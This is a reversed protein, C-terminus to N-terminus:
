SGLSSGSQEVERSSALSYVLAAERRAHESGASVAPDRPLARSNQYGILRPRRPDRPGRRRLLDNGAPRVPPLAEAADRDEASNATVDAKLLLAGALKAAGGSRSFTFREMEKCSVCWDAYFDLMVPRGAAACRPTSSPSAASRSHLAPMGAVRRRRQKRRSAPWRSCASRDRGVGRRRGAARRRPRALRRDGPALACARCPPQCAGRRRRAARRAAGTRGVVLLGAAGLALLAGSRWRSRGPCSRSCPGSRSASCCCASRAGQGRGDLRRRAALLAGASAGVLLLPVSMGAALSFLALAASGSTARRASISCPAPSRRPSARASSSRRSAAWRACAPSAGGAPLTQAASAFESPSRRRCSCTRLRRVDVAVAGGPRARLRRAGVPEAAGRRPRRRGPRRRRRVATYVVAMGFSYSAALRSAAAARCSRAPARGRRAAAGAVAPTPETRRGPRRHDVLRDAADAARVAHALAAPRRHLVRRRDVLVLRRAARSRDRRARRRRRDLRRARRRRGRRRRRRLAPRVDVIRRAPAASAPWASRRRARCRRIACARTPAARARHRRPPVRRRAQEVPVVITIQTATPRSTRRSPRTTSRGQRAPDAAPGLTAGNAAFKFQERYLYYGPAITSPSRSRSRRRHPRASFQFAKDPELFDDAARASGVDGRAPSRASSRLRPWRPGALRALAFIRAQM